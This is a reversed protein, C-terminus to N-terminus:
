KDTTRRGGGQQRTRGYSFIYIDDHLALELVEVFPLNGRKATRERTWAMSKLSSIKQPQLSYAKSKGRIRKRREDGM